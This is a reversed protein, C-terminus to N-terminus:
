YLLFPVRDQFSRSDYHVSSHSCARQRSDEVIADCSETEEGTLSGRTPLVGSVTQFFVFEQEMADSKIHHFLDTAWIALVFWFM